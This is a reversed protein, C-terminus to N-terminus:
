QAWFMLRRILAADRTQTTYERSMTRPLYSRLADDDEDGDSPPAIRTRQTEPDMICEKLLLDCIHLREPFAYESSNKCQSQFQMTTHIFKGIMNFKAWHIKTPDNPNFDPNGEHARILDSLHVELAPICAGKTNRLAMRYARHSRVYQLLLDWSQLSKWLAPARQQFHDMTPDGPYPTANNIGAVFARLASYNNFARLKQAIEVLKEIQRARAKPKDHCLILSVVWDAIHNSVESFRAISDTEPEKKGSVLTHQLWHRPEIQLFLKTEIRTIEQAVETPDMANLEQSVKQLEKIVQKPSMESEGQSDDLSPMMEPMVLAKATLPLSSKREKAPTPISSASRGNPSPQSIAVSDVTAVEAAADEEEDFLSYSDDSESASEDIKLAWRADKDALPRSELFPLFDSGYHLLHTKSVISKVLANLADAAAGVAFDHPYDHIWVELLHCLRMQAFCAFMPDNSSQDLQRMRKQMALVVSRPSAFRRYTLLFHHIYAWDDGSVALFLLKDLLEELTAWPVLRSDKDKDGAREEITEEANGLADDTISSSLQLPNNGNNALASLETIDYFTARTPSTPAAASRPPGSPSVLAHTYQSPTQAMAATPTATTSRSVDWPPPSRLHEPSAPNQYSDYDGRIGRREDFIAKLLWEFGLRLNNKGGDELATVEILGVDYQNLRDYVRRSEVHRELDCKCAFVVTPLKLDRFGKLVDEVRAFSSEQAVDYCVFAGDLAPAGDPWISDGLIARDLHLYATNVELVRLTRDTASDRAIKGERLTYNFVKHGGLLESMQSEDSLGYGKLGKIIAMSKGCGPEGVVAVTVDRQSNYGVSNMGTNVLHQTGRGSADSRGLSGSRTRSLGFSTEGLSDGWHTLTSAIPPLRPTEDQVPSLGSPSALRSPLPLDGPSVIPQLKGKGKYNSRRSGEVVPSLGHICESDSDEQLSRDYDESVTSISAGRSRGSLPFRSDREQYSVHPPDMAPHQWAM